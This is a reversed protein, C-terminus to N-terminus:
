RKLYKQRMIREEENTSGFKGRTDERNKNKDEQNKMRRKM